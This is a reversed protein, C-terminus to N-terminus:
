VQRYPGIFLDGLTRRALYTLRRRRLHETKDNLLHCRQCLAALNDAANNQPDHDVHCTSLVVRTRRTPLMRWLRKGKGCRWRQADTGGAAM